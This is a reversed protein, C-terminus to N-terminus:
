ATVPLEPGCMECFFCVYKCLQNIVLERDGKFDLQELIKSIFKDLKEEKIVPLFILLMFFKIKILNTKIFADNIEENILKEFDYTELEEKAKEKIMEPCEGIVFDTIKERDINDYVHAKVFKRLNEAKEKFLWLYEESIM